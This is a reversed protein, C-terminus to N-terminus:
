GRNGVSEGVQLFPREQRQQEIQVLPKTSVRQENSVFTKNSQRQENATLSKEQLKQIAELLTQPTYGQSTGWPKTLATFGWLQLATPGTLTARLSRGKIGAPLWVNVRQRGTTAPITRTDRVAGNIETVITAGSPADLDIAYWKIAHVLIFPVQRTDWFTTSLPEAETQMSLNWVTFPQASQMTVRFTRGHLPPNFLHDIRERGNTPGVTFTGNAPIVGDVYVNVTVVAPADLDFYLQRILQPTEFTVERSDWFTTALPQAEMVGSLNWLTFLTGSSLTLRYVSGRVLQAGTTTVYNIRARGGTPGVSFTERSVGDIYLTASCAAPADLDFLLQRLIQPTEYTLERSDWFTTQLPQTETVGELGWLQFPNTSTLTLRYVTGQVVNSGTTLVRNVRQRGTTPGVTWTESSVGDIYWTATVGAAPAEIDFLIQRVIQRTDFPIDRSDWVTVPLPEPEFEGIAAYVLSPVASTLTLRFIKGRTLAPPLSIVQDYRTRGNTAPLVFAALAVGDVTVQATVTTTADYTFHIRRLTTQSDFVLPGTDLYPLDEAELQAHWGLQTITMRTTGSWTLDLAIHHRRLQAPASTQALPLLGMANDAGSTVTGATLVETSRNFAAQVTLVTGLTNAEVVIDSYTKVVRPVNQDRAPLRVRGSIATGVDTTETPVEAQWIHSHGTGCTLTLAQPDSYLSEMAQASTDFFADTYQGTQPNRKLVLRRSPVTDGAVGYILVVEPESPHPYWAMQYRALLAPDRSLPAIGHVTEETFFPDLDGSIKQQTLGQQQYIGDKALFFIRGDGSCLCWRGLLGHSLPVPLPVYADAGQGVIQWTQDESWVFISQDTMLGNLAEQSGDGIQLEFQFPWNSARDKHYQWAKSFRLKNRDRIMFLRQQAGPGFLVVGDAPPPDNDPELPHAINLSEDAITDLWTTTDSPVNTVLYALPEGEKQRYIAIQDIDGVVPARAIRSLDLTILQREATITNSYLVVQEVTKPPSSEDGTSSVRYTATYRVSTSGSPGSGRQMLVTGIQMNLGGPTADATASIVYTSMMQWPEPSGTSIDFQSKKFTASYWPPTGTLQAPLVVVHARSDMPPLVGPTDDEGMRPSVGLFVHVRDLPAAPDFSMELTIVDDQSDLTNYLMYQDGAVTEYRSPDLLGPEAHFGNAVEITDNANTTTRMATVRGGGGTTLNLVYMGAQVGVAQFDTSSDELTTASGGTATHTEYQVAGLAMNPLLQYTDGADWLHGGLGGLFELQHTSIASIRGFFRTGTLAPGHWGQVFWGPMIGLEDLNRTSDVLHDNGSAGDHTGGWFNGHYTQYVGTAHPNLHIPGPPHAASEAHARSGLSTNGGGTVTGAATSSASPPETPGTIGWPVFQTGNDKRALGGGIFYKWPHTYGDVWNTESLITYFPLGAHLGVPSHWNTDTRYLAGDSGAVQVYGWDATAGYLKTHLLVHPRAGDIPASTLQTMGPRSVILGRTRDLRINAGVRLAQQPIMDEAGSLVSGNTWSRMLETQFAM